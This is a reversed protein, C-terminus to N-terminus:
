RYGFDFPNSDAPLRVADLQTKEVTIRWSGSWQWSALWVEGTSKARRL